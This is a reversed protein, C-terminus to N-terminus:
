SNTVYLVRHARPSTHRKATLIRRLHTHVGECSCVKRSYVCGIRWGEAGARLLGPYQQRQMSPCSPSCLKELPVLSASSCPSSASALAYASFVRGPSVINVSPDRSSSPVAPYETTSHLNAEDASSGPGLWIDHVRELCSPVNRLQPPGSRVDGDIDPPARHVLTDRSVLLGLPCARPPPALRGRPPIALTSPGPLPM